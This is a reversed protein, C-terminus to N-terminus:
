DKSTRVARLLTFLCIGQWNDKGSGYQFQYSDGTLLSSGGDATRVLQSFTMNFWFFSNEAPPPGTLKFDMLM